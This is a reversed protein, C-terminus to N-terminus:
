QRLSQFGSDPKNGADAKIGVQERILKALERAEADSVRKAFRIYHGQHHFWITGYRSAQEDRALAPDGESAVRFDSIEAAAYTKMKGLSLVKKGITLENPAAVIVEKGFMLNGLLCFVTVEGFFWFILWCVLFLTSGMESNGSILAGLAGFGGITWGTLWFLLFGMTFYIAGTKRPKIIITRRYGDEEIRAIGGPVAERAM